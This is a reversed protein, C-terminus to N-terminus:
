VTEEKVLGFSHAFFLFIHPEIFAIQDCPQESNQNKESGFIHHHTCPMWWVDVMGMFPYLKLWVHAISLWPKEFINM